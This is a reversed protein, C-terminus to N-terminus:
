APSTRRKQARSGTIKAGCEGKFQKGVKTKTLCEFRSIASMQPHFAAPRRISPHISQSQFQAQTQNYQLPPFRFVLVQIQRRNRWQICTSSKAIRLIPLLCTSRPRRSVHTHTHTNARRSQEADKICNWKSKPMESRGMGM